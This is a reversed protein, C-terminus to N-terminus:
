SGCASSCDRRINLKFQYRIKKLFVERGDSRKEPKHESPAAADSEDKKTHCKWRAIYVLSVTIDM